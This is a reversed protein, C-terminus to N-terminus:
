GKALVAALRDWTELAGGIMGTAIAGDIVEPSGMHGISTVKTRGEVEEFRFTEPGGQPGLGDVDFMFTWRFGDPPTVELYEGYFVVDERDAASSVYRWRGGPRVDM